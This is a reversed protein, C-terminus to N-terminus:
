GECRISLAILGSAQLVIWQVFTNILVKADTPDIIAHRSFVVARNNFAVKLEKFKSSYSYDTRTERHSQQHPVV